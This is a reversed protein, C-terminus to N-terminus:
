LKLPPIISSFVPHMLKIFLFITRTHAKFVLIRRSNWVLFKLPNEKPHAFFVTAQFLQYIDRECFM